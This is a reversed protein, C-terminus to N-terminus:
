ERRTLDYHRYRADHKVYFKGNSIVYDPYIDDRDDTVGVVREVFGGCECRALSSETGMLEGTSHPCYPSETMNTEDKM